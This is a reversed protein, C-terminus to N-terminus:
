KELALYDRKMDLNLAYGYRRLLGVGIIPQGKSIIVNVVNSVGEMSVVILSAAMNVTNEDGLTVPETHTMRLGLELAKDRSIKLEQYDALLHPGSRRAFPAWTTPVTQRRSHLVVNYDHSSEREKKSRKEKEKHIRTIDTFDGRPETHVSRAHRMGSAFDARASVMGQCARMTGRNIGSERVTNM